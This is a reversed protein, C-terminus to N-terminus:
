AAPLLNGPKSWGSKFNFLTCSKKLSEAQVVLNEFLFDGFNEGLSESYAYLIVLANILIIVYWDQHPLWFGHLDSVHIMYDFEMPRICSDHQLKKTM